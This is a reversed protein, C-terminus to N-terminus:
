RSLRYMIANGLAAIGSVFVGNTIWLIIGYDEIFLSLPTQITWSFIGLIFGVWFGTCQMCTIMRGIFPMKVIIYNRPTEFISSGVLLDTLSWCFVSYIIVYIM